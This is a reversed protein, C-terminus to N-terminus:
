YSNIYRMARLTVHLCGSIVIFSFCFRMVDWNKQAIELTSNVVLYDPVSMNWVGVLAITAFFYLIPLM